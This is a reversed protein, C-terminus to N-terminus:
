KLRNREEPTLIIVFFTLIALLGIIMLWEQLYKFDLYILPLYLVFSFFLGLFYDAPVGWWRKSHWWIHEVSIKKIGFHPNVVIWLFDWVISFLLFLSLTQLEKEWNWNLGVFFPYHMILIVLSFVALHYGTTPKGSMIKSFMKNVKSGDKPRWTPLNSAWGHQGEIQVEVIALVLAMIFLYITQILM